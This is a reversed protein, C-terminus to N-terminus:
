RPQNFNNDNRKCFFAAGLSGLGLQRLKSDKSDLQAAVTSAITTKGSGAPGSLWFVNDGPKKSDIWDYLQSLIDQRTGPLCQLGHDYAAAKSRPLWELLESVCTLTLSIISRFRWSKGNDAQAVLSVKIDRLDDKLAGVARHGEVVTKLIQISVSNNFKMTLESFVQQFRQIIEATNSSLSQRVFRGLGFEILCKSQCIILLSVGFGM